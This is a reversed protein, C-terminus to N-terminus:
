FSLNYTKGKETDFVAFDGDFSYKTDISKLGEAKIKCQMGAKSTVFANILKGNKWEADIVFGGRAVLGKFSGENLEDALAPLLVIREEDSRLLMEIVAAAAGFSGEIQFIPYRSLFTNTMAGPTRLMVYLADLAENGYGLRSYCASRWAGNWGSFGVVKGTESDIARRELTKKCAEAIEPTKDPTIQYDPYLGFLHSLHHHHPDREIYDDNWEMVCGNRNIRTNRFKSLYDKFTEYENDCEGLIECAKIVSRFLARLIQNDMEPAMCEKGIIGDETYFSSEPSLSPSTVYCGDDDLVLYQTFFRAAKRMIPFAREKLFEKDQTYVFHEWAHLCLWAGGMPWIASPFATGGISTDAWLNSTHHAVFGDCHYITKATREGNPVMRELLNLLPEHCESLGAPEAIWYNMQTNINLTYNSEWAAEMKNNWIGQLNMSQTGPRSASIMLYKGYNFFLEILGKDDAGERVAKLREDIPTESNMGFEISSRNFLSSFDETHRKKLTEYDIKMAKRLQTLAIEHPNKEYFDSCATVYLIIESANKVGIFDGIVSVEGDTKVSMFCDFSVGGPGCQGPMHIISGDIIDTKVGVSRRMLCAHIDLLPKDASIKFVMVQDPVSVFNERHINLNDQTYKMSAIANEIDLVREYNEIKEGHNFFLQICGMCQYSGFYKPSSTMAMYCLKDAEKFKGEKLLRRIEQLHEYADPNDRNQHPGHWLSDENLFIKEGFFGNPHPIMAGLRGNGVPLGEDWIWVLEPGFTKQIIKNEM